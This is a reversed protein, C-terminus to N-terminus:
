AEADISRKTARASRGAAESAKKAEIEAEERAQEKARKAAKTRPSQRTKGEFPSGAFLGEYTYESDQSSVEDGVGAKRRKVAAMAAAVNRKGPSSMYWNGHTPPDGLIVHKKM